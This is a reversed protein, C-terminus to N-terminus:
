RSWVTGNAWFIANGHLQGVLGGLWDDAIVARGGWIFRGNSQQGKENTFILWVGRPGGRVIQINTPQSPDGDFFWPGAIQPLGPGPQVPPVIPFPPPQAAAPGAVGALVVATLVWTRFM